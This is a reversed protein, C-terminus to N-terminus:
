QMYNLKRYAIRISNKFKNFSPLQNLKDIQIKQGIPLYLDNITLDHRRRRTLDERSIRIADKIVSKPDTIEEPEKYIGLDVENINTGIEKKFLTKDALMWAEIMQVPVVSVQIRCIEMDSYEELKTQAPIIKNHMVNDDSPGDADAHVCLVMIGYEKFGKLSASIVKECFSLGPENLSIPIIVTEVDGNCDFGIEDFTRQAVSLLFKTDTIGETFLGIFIQRTM